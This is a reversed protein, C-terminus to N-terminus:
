LVLLDRSEYVSVKHRTARDIAMILSIMGDIDLDILIKDRRKVYEKIKM